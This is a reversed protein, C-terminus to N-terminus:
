LGKDQKPNAKTIDVQWKESLAQIQNKWETTKQISEELKKYMEGDRAEDREQEALESYFVQYEYQLELAEIFLQNLDQIEKTQPKISSINQIHEEILTLFHEQSFQKFSDTSSLLKYSENIKKSNEYQYESLVAIYNEFDEKTSVQPAQSCGFTILILLFFLYKM